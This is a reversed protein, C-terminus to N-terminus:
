YWHRRVIFGVLVLGLYFLGGGSSKGSMNSEAPTPSPTPTTTQASKKFEATVSATASQNFGCGQYSKGLIAKFEGINFEGTLIDNIGDQNLDTVATATLGDETAILEKSSEFAFNDLGYNIRLSYPGYHASIVDIRSDKDVDAFAVGYPATSTDLTVSSFSNVGSYLSVKGEVIETAVVHLVDNVLITDLTVAATNSIMTRQQYGKGSNAYIATISQSISGVLQFLDGSTDSDFSSIVIEPKGDNEIDVVSFAYPKVGSIRIPDTAVLQGNGDNLLVTIDGRRYDSVLLDQYGDQNWDYADLASPYIFQSDVFKSSFGNLTNEIQKVKGDFLSIAFLDEVGDNNIDLVQLTKAGGKANSLLLWEQAYAVKNGFDCAQGVWQVFTADNNSLPNLLIASSTTDITCTSTCSKDGYNVQGNNTVKLDIVNAQAMVSVACISLLLKIKM